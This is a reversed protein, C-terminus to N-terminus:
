LRESNEYVIKIEREGGFGVASDDYKPSIDSPCLPIAKPYLEVQASGACMKETQLRGIISNMVFAVYDPKEDKITLINVHNSALAKKESSYMATRGINAGTTYTLIDGTKIRAKKQEDWYDQTTKEFADYALGDELIHQSTIVDISGSDIYKPQLGRSNRIQIEAVKKTYSSNKYVSEMVEDYKPQFHEADFREANMVESANKVFSLRHKPKWSALGLEALLLTQAEKFNTESRTQISQALKILNEISEQIKVNLMPIPLQALNVLSIYPNMQETKLSDAFGQGFSSNLYAALYGPLLNKNPLILAVDQNLAMDKEYEFFPYAKCIRRKITCVVAGSQIRRKTFEAEFQESTIRKTKDYFFDLDGVCEVTIFPIDGISVDHKYPTHGTGMLKVEAGLTSFNLKKNLKPLKTRFPHAHYDADLRKDSASLVHSYNAVAYQM